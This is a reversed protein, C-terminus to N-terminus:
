TEDHSDTPAEDESRAADRADRTEKAAREAAARAARGASSRLNKREVVPTEDADSKSRSKKGGRTRRAGRQKEPENPESESPMESEAPPPVPEAPLKAVTTPTLLDEVDVNGDDVPAPPPLPLPPAVVPESVHLVEEKPPETKEKKRKPPDPTSEHQQKSPYEPLDSFLASSLKKEMEDHKVETMSTGSLALAEKMAAEKPRDEITRSLLDSMNMNAVDAGLNPPKADGISKALFEASTRSLAELAEKMDTDRFRRLMRDDMESLSSMLLSQTSLPDKREHEPKSRKPETRAAM